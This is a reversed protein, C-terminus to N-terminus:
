YSLMESDMRRFRGTMATYARDSVCDVIDAAVLPRAKTKAETTYNSLHELFGLRYQAPLTEMEEWIWESLEHHTIDLQEIYTSM